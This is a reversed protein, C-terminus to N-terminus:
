PNQPPAKQKQQEQGRRILNQGIEDWKKGVGQLEGSCRVFESQLQALTMKSVEDVMANEVNLGPSRGELKGMYYMTGLLVATQMAQDSLQRTESNLEVLRSLAVLCRV